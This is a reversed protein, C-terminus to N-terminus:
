NKLLLLNCVNENRKTTNYLTQLNTFDKDNNEYTFVNIKIDNLKEYKKIDHQIDIPYKIDKPINLENYYKKYHKPDNKDKNNIDEYHKNALLCWELCKDDTNKINVIAKKYQLVEPTKFYSGAKTKISKNLGITIKRIKNFILDSKLLTQELNNMFKNVQNFVYEKIWNISQIRELIGTNYYLKHIKEDDYDGKNEYDYYDYRKNNLITAKVKGESIIMDSEFLLSVNLNHKNGDIDKFKIFSKTIESSIIDTLFSINNSYYISILQNIRSNANNFKVDTLVYYNDTVFRILSQTEKNMTERPELIVDHFVGNLAEKATRRFLQVESIDGESKLYNVKRTEKDIKSKSPQYDDGLFAPLGKNKNIEKTIKRQEVAAKIKEEGHKQRYTQKKNQKIARKADMTKAKKAAAETKYVKENYLFTDNNHKLIELSNKIKSNM